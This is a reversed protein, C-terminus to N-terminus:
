KTLGTSRSARCRTSAERSREHSPPKYFRTYDNRDRVLLPLAVVSRHGLGTMSLGLGIFAVLFQASKM